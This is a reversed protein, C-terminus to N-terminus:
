KDEPLVTTYFPNTGDQNTAYVASLGFQDAIKNALEMEGVSRLKGLLAPVDDIQQELEEKTIIGDSLAKALGVENTFSSTEQQNTTNQPEQEM